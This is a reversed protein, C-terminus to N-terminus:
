PTLFTSNVSSKTRAVASRRANKGKERPRMQGGAWPVADRHSDPRLRHVASPMAQLRQTLQHRPHRSRWPYGTPAAVYWALVDQDHGAVHSQAVGGDETM